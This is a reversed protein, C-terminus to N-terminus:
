FEFGGDIKTIDFNFTSPEISAVQGRLSDLEEKNEATLEPLPKQM